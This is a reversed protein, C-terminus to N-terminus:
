GRVQQDSQRVATASRSALSFRGAPRGRYSGVSRCGRVCVTESTPRAHGRDQMVILLDNVGVELKNRLRALQGIHDAQGPTLLRAPLGVPKPAVLEAVDWRIANVLTHQKDAKDAIGLQVAM